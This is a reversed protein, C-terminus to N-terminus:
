PITVNKWSETPISLLARPSKREKPPRRSLRGGTETRGWMGTYKICRLLERFSLFTHTYSKEVVTSSIFKDELLTKLAKGGAFHVASVRKKGGSVLRLATDLERYTEPGFYSFVLKGGSRLANKFRWLAGNLDRFWQFTANSTILNFRNSYAIEEADGCVFRAMRGYKARAAKLMHPLIDMCYFEAHPYTELLMGTYIGTGCGPEFVTGPRGAPFRKLLEAATQKQVHAYRDYYRAAETRRNRCVAPQAATRNMDSLVNFIM